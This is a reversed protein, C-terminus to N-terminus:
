ASAVETALAKKAGLLNCRLGAAHRSEQHRRPIIRAPIIRAIFGARATKIVIQM